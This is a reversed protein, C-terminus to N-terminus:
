RNAAIAILDFDLHRVAAASGNFAFPLHTDADTISGGGVVAPTPSTPSYLKCSVPFRKAGGTGTPAGVELVLGYWTSAVIPVSSTETTTAAGAAHLFRFAANTDADAQLVAFENGDKYIGIQQVSDALTAATRFFYIFKPRKDFDVLQLGTMNVNNSNTALRVIGGHGALGAATGGTGAITWPTGAGYWAVSANAYCFDDKWFFGNYEGNRFLAMKLNDLGCDTSINANKIGGSKGM